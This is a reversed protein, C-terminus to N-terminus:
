DARHILIRPGGPGDTLPHFTTVLDIFAELDRDFSRKTAPYSLVYFGDPLTIVAYAHMRRNYPKGDPGIDVGWRINNPVRVPSYVIFMKLPLGSEGHTKAPIQSPKALIRYQGTSDKDPGMLFVAKDEGYRYNYVQSLTQNIYDDAGSYLEAGGDRLVHTRYNRYWKVSFSPLGFLFDRDFPGTFRTEAFDTGQADTYVNWGWPVTAVYDNFPSRYHVNRPARCAAFAALLVCAAASKMRM